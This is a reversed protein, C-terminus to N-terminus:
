CCTERSRRGVGGFADAGFARACAARGALAGVAQADQVDVGDPVRQCVGRGLCPRGRRSSLEVASLWGAHWELALRVGSM